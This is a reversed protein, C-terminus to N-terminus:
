SRKVSTPHTMKLNAGAKNQRRFNRHWKDFFLAVILLQVVRFEGQVGYGLQVIMIPIWLWYVARYIVGTSAKVLHKDFVIFITSLAAFFPGVVALGGNWYVNALILFGGGHHYYEMLRYNDNLPRDWLVGDLFEPLAQPILNIFTLGSLSIGDKILQVAYLLHYLSQGIMTIDGLRIQQQGRYVLEADDGLGVGIWFARGLVEQWSNIALYFRM